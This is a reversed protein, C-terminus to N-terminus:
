GIRVGLRERRIVAFRALTNNRADDRSISALDYLGGYEKHGGVLARLRGGRMVQYGDFHTWEARSGWGRDRGVRVFVDPPVCVLRFALPDLGLLEGVVHPGRKQLRAEIDDRALGRRQELGLERLLPTVTENGEAHTEILVCERAAPIPVYRIGASNVYLHLAFLSVTEAFVAAVDPPVAFDSAAVSLRAIGDKARDYVAPSAGLANREIFEAIAGAVAGSALETEVSELGLGKAAPLSKEPLPDGLVGPVAIAGTGAAPAADGSPSVTTRRGLMSAALSEVASADGRELAQLAQHEVSGSSSTTTSAAGAAPAGPVDLSELARQRAGYLDGRRTTV